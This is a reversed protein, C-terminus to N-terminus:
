FIQRCTAGNIPLILSKTYFMKLVDADVHVMWHILSDELNQQFLGLTVNM